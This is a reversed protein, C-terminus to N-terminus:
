RAVLKVSVAVEPEVKLMLFKPPEVGFDRIDLTFTASADIGHDTITGRGEPRIALERGRWALVGEGTARFAGDSDREIAVVRSLSFRAEPYRRVDLDGRLKRTRLFDGGDATTLDVTLDLTVSGSQDLADPDAEIEGALPGLTAEIDHVSSRATAAVRSAASEITYVRKAM